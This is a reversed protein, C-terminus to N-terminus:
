SRAFPPHQDADAPVAAAAGKRAEERRGQRHRPYRGAGVDSRRRRDCLRGPHHLPRCPGGGGREQRSLARCLRGLPRGQDPGQRLLRRRWAPCLRRLYRRHDQARDPRLRRRPRRGRFQRDPQGPLRLEEAADLGEAAGIRGRDLDDGQDPRAFIEQRQPEERQAPDLGRGQHLRDAQRRCIEGHGPEQRRAASRCAPRQPAERFAGEPDQARLLDACAHLLGERLSRERQLRLRVDHGPRRRGRGRREEKEQRRRGDRHRAVPRAAAGRRRRRSLLLREPRLRYGQGRRPRDRHDTRSRGGVQRPHHPVAPRPRRRRDRDQQDHVADRLRAPHQGRQRRRHRTRRGQDPLCRPDRGFDPGLGQGSSRRFGVRQHVSLVRADVLGKKRRVEATGKM